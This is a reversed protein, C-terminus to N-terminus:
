ARVPDPRSGRQADLPRRLALGQQHPWPHHLGPRSSPDHEELRDHRAYERSGGRTAAAGRVIHVTNYRTGLTATALAIANFEVFNYFASELATGQALGPSLIVVERQAKSVPTAAGAPSATLAVLALTALILISLRRHM